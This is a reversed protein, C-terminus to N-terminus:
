CRGTEDAPQLMIPFPGLAPAALPAQDRVVRWQMLSQDAGGMSFLHGGDCAFALRQVPSCHARSVRPLADKYAAPYRMLLLRGSTDGAVVLEKFPDTCASIVDCDAM